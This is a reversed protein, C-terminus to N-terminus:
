KAPALKLETRSWDEGARKVLTEYRDKEFTIKRVTLGQDNRGLSDRYENLSINFQGDEGTDAVVEVSWAKTTHGFGSVGKRYLEISVKVWPVPKNTATDVVIGQVKRPLEAAVDVCSVCLGAVLLIISSAFQV